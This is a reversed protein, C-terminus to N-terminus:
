LGPVPFEETLRRVRQKLEQVHKERLALDIIEALEHMEKRGMGRTTVAPTGLRLGSAEKAPRPDHPILNKNAVIGVQMLREEATKGTLSKDRLDLLLLHTDTGGSVLRYGREALADGLAGANEVMAVAYERFEPKLAEGFACAKAAIVNLLPGGQGGPFVSKDLRKALEKKCLITGGRPGRLTKHTTFTIVDAHPFPLKNAGGAVLGATHAIDAVLWAGVKKAISGLREWDVERPLASGGGVLIRPRCREALAEVEGYDIRGNDPDIGYHVGRFISGTHSVRAGHSLHGGASLDMALLTEGPSMLAMYVALNAQTGSHPQVNAHEARFLKKVRERALEEVMDAIDCGGYYRAGPYGEAYKDTLPSSLCARVARSCHNESAILTLTNQQREVEKDLADLLDPDPILFDNRTNMSDTKKFRFFFLEM